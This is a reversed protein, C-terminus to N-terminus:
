RIIHRNRAGWYAVMAVEALHSADRAPLMASGAEHIATKAVFMAEEAEPCLDGSGLSPILTALENSFDSESTIEEVDLENMEICNIHTPKKYSM